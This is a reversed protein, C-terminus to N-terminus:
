GGAIAMMISEAIWVTSAPPLRDISCIAAAIPWIMSPPQSSSCIARSSAARCRLPSVTASTAPAAAAMRCRIVGM